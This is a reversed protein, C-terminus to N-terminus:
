VARIAANIDLTVTDAVLNPFGSAGFASRSLAGRLRITLARLDDPASGPLRFLDAQLTLPRTVGRVTVRGTVTAGGSLRGDQALRISTSVFRVEPHNAADLVSAGKLADTAFFLATWAQAVSVSVDVQASALNDPDILLDARSVPMTGRQAVGNLIYTFGVTSAQPDLRYRTPAAQALAPFATLGALFLRRTLM